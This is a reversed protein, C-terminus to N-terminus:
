QCSISYNINNPENLLLDIEKVNKSINFGKKLVDVIELLAKNNKIYQASILDRDLLICQM